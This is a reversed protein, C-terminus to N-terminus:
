NWIVIRRAGEIMAKAGSPYTFLMHLPGEPSDVVVAESHRKKRKRRWTVL